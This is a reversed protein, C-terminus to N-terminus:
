LGLFAFLEASTYPKTAAIKEEQEPKLFNLPVYWGHGDRCRGECDHGGCNNDWYVGYHANSGTGRVDVVTGTSGAPLSDRLYTRLEVRDDVHFVNIM